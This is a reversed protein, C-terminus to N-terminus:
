RSAPLVRYIAAHPSRDLLGFRQRDALLRDVLQRGMDPTFDQAFDSATRLLYNLHNRGAFSDLSRYERAIGDLDEHYLLSPSIHLSMAPRGTYLYLVADDNAAFAADTPTNTEIWRYEPLVGARQQRASDALGYIGALPGGYVATLALPTLAGLLALTSLALVRRAGAQRGSVVRWAELAAFSLGALLLPLLPLAFRPVPPYHWVALMPLLGLAFAHYHTVGKRHALMVVGATAVTAAACAPLRGLAGGLV